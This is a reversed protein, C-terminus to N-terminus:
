GAQLQRRMADIDFRDIYAPINRWLTHYGFGGGFMEASADAKSWGQVVMRYAACVVGTRDAGHWCHVLTPGREQARAIASLARVVEDDDISWTNIRIRVLEIGSEEFRPRDSNYARLSVITRIGLVHLAARNRRRPQASRYLTDSIRHLNELGLGPLPQAWHASRSSLRELRIRL